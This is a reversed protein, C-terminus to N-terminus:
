QCRLRELLFGYLMQEVNGTARACELINVFGSINSDTYASPNEFSYRVGAQAALHVIMTPRHIAFLRNLATRDCLDVPLFSFDAAACAALRARKLAPDYYDNLNDLGVVREGRELLARVVAHGIFGACGTVLIVDSRGRVM